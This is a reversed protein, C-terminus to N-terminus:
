CKCPERESLYLSSDLTFLSESYQYGGQIEHDMGPPKVPSYSFRCRRVQM